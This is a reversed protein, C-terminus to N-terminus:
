FAATVQVSFWCSSFASPASTSLQHMVASKTVPDSQDTAFGALTGGIAGGGGQERDDGQAGVGAGQGAGGAAPDEGRGGTSAHGSRRGSEGTTAGIIHM